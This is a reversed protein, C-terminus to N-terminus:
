RIVDQVRGRKALLQWVEDRLREQVEDPTGYASVQRVRKPDAAAIARYGEYIRQHFALQELEMRDAEGRSKARALGDEPSLDLVLTLDPLLGETAQLNLERLWDVALGRGYGQYAIHSDIYRDCLVIDGAVLHPRLFEAAHQARDAAM